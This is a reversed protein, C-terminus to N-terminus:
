VTKGDDNTLVKGEDSFLRIFTQETGDGTIHKVTKTRM